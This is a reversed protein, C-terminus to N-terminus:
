KFGLLSHMACWKRRFDADILAFRRRFILLIEHGNTYVQGAYFNQAPNTTFYIQAKKHGNLGTIRDFINTDIEHENTAFYKQDKKHSNLGHKPYFSNKVKKGAGPKIYDQM